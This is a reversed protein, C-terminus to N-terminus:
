KAGSHKRYTKYMKYDKRTVMDHILHKINAMKFINIYKVVQTWKLEIATILPYTSSKMFM